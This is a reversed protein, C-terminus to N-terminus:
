EKTDLGVVVPDRKVRQYLGMDKNFVFDILAWVWSKCEPMDYFEPAIKKLQPLRTWPINPFDHHENHYGVNFALINLAGYYSYTEQGPVTVYHEAIFHGAMPHLSGGLFISVALYIIPNIGHFYVLTAMTTAQFLFSFTYWSCLWQSLSKPTPHSKPTAVFSPRLAYFLIQFTCFFLKGLTSNLLRAELASPLDADLGETGQFRHHDTDNKMALDLLDKPVPQMSEELNRVLDAAFRDETKTILTYATGKSGARGTRGIRHVHSDIDKAVDFNVVHKVSKIDLGRAAVDTCVLVKVKGNKVDQVVKEREHQLMDGHLASCPFGHNNLNASLEDVGAKRGIFIVVTGDASFKDLRSTLWNWKYSDDELVQIVQEIDANSQGVNGITIRVPECLVDRALREVKKQFTASFLLTQRDPRISNCISRVQPEFGLDFMRDAEDLVLFSTRKFNTAKMKIMDILRGPTAVVIEIGGARLEKFQDGKSGGGYVVSVGLSYAKAYKKAEIYIQNALERTPALIVGIPGEGKQLEQQDMIHVLMPWLFAATKGSGTQAIGIIDRGSLAAPIAQKQIATPETFGQKAIVSVLANDFGFHGFSICPKPMDPGSIRVDLERRIQSVDADTLKTIDPHEEYLNKEIEIYSIASHDVRPLPEIDKKGFATDDERHAHGHAADVARATAYVEEDSDAAEDRIQNNNGLEIGQSKMHEIYSEMYDEEELLESKQVTTSASKQQDQQTKVQTDIQAMFADLPDAEDDDNAVKPPAASPLPKPVTLTSAVPKSLITPRSSGFAPTSLKSKQAPRAWGEDDDDDDDRAWNPRKSM